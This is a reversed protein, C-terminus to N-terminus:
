PALGPVDQDKLVEAISRVHDPFSGCCGGVIRAGAEVLRSAFEGMEEALVPYRPPHGAPVGANPKSWIPLGTELSRLERVIKEMNSLTTGCNAGIAAVGLGAIAEAMQSPSVGMMTYLGRDYSFSCVLPLDSVTQVAEVAATAEDIAFFTELVLLDVGGEALAAAQEAFAEGVDSASLPGYPQMLQGTPGMSGAVFVTRDVEEAARRALRAAERNVETVRDAVKSDRLRIGNGSFTCTLIIDAGARVYDAHLELIRDPGDVVYEEALAGPAMGRSQLATGSSGDAVLVGGESLRDLFRSM